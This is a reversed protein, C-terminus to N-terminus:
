AYSSLSMRNLDQIGIELISLANEAEKSPSSLLCFIESKHLSETRLPHPQAVCQDTPVLLAAVMVCPCCVCCPMQFMAWSM